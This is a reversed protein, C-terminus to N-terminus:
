WSSHGLHETVANSFIRERSEAINRGLTAIMWNMPDANVGPVGQKWKAVESFMLKQPPTLDSM